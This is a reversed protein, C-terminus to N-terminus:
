FAGGFGHLCAGYECRLKRALVESCHRDNVENGVPRLDVLAIQQHLEVSLRLHSM